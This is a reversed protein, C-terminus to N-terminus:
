ISGEIDGPVYPIIGKEFALRQVELPMRRIDVIYGNVEVMWTAPNSEILKPLLWESNFYNMNFMKRIEGAKNGATSASIGFGSAIEDYKGQMNKPVSM